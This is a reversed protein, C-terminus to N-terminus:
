ASIGDLELRAYVTNGREGISFSHRGPYHELLRQKVNNLGIGSCDLEPLLNAGREVWRGSNIIEVVCGSGERTASGKISAVSESTRMGYKVANEVLPQILFSPLSREHLAPDMTVEYEIREEFRAKQIALYHRVAEFERALSTHESAAGVLSYRLFLSLNGILQQARHPDEAISARLSTLANFLFHPNLQYRLMQTRARQAGALAESLRRKEQALDLAYRIGLYLATWATFVLSAHLQGEFRHLWARNGPSTLIIGQRSMWASIALSSAATLLPLIMALAITVAPPLARLEIAQLVCRLVLTLVVGHGVVWLSDLAKMPFALRECLAYAVWGGLQLAWIMQRRSVVLPALIATRNRVPPTIDQLRLYSM